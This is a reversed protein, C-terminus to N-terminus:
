NKGEDFEGRENYFMEFANDLPCGLLVQAIKMADEQMFSEEGYNLKKLKDQLASYWEKDEFDEGRQVESIVHSLAPLVITVMLLQEQGKSSKSLLKYLKHTQEPLRIYIVDGDTDVVMFKGKTASVRMMSEVSPKDKNSVGLTLKEYPCFALIDGKDLSAVKYDSDYFEPNFNKNQYSGIEKCAMIVMNMEIDGGVESPDISIIIKDKNGEVPFLKRYSSSIGEVHVAYVARKNKILNRLGSDDLTFAVELNLQDSSVKKERWKTSFSSGIYDDTVSSLVPYPFLDAQLKM